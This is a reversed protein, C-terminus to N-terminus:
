SHCVEVTQVGIVTLGIVQESVRSLASTCYHFNTGSLSDLLMIGSMNNRSLRHRLPFEVELVAPVNKPGEIGLWWQRVYLGRQSLSHM